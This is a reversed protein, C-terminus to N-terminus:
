SVEICSLPQMLFEAEGPYQSLFQISAGIDVRGAQIEFVTGRKKDIGSNWHDILGTPDFGTCYFWFSHSEFVRRYAYATEKATTTSMLGFEVAWGAIVM